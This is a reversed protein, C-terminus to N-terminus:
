LTLQEKPVAFYTNQMLRRQIESLEHEAEELAEVLHAEAGDKSITRLARETRQRATSICLMAREIEAFHAENVGAM